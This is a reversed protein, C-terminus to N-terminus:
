CQLFQGELRQLFLNDVDFATVILGDVSVNLVVQLMEAYITKQASVLEAVEWLHEFLSDALIDEKIISRIGIGIDLWLGDAAVKQESIHRVGLVLFEDRRRQNIEAIVHPSARSPSATM